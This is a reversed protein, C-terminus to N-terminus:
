DRTRAAQDTTFHNFEKTSVAPFGMADIAVQASVEESRLAVGGPVPVPKFRKASAFLNSSFVSNGYTWFRTRITARLM